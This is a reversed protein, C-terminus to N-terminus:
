SKTVTITYTKTVSDNTVTVTVTNSGADWTITGGNEIVTAAGHKIEVEADTYMTTVNITNTANTTAATYTTESPDFEPSLTLTGIKLSYLDASDSTTNGGFTIVAIGDLYQSFLTMGMIAFCESVATNYNGNVHFGILNTDGDVRYELGAKSYESDGPDVYYLVINEVPTAIVMGPEIESTLFLKSYGMFNNLYNLGFENQVTINAAGLYTYADLINCFGVINTIGKKMQKWKNRVRGQAMALAMQFNAESSKLMGTKIYDYFKDTVKNQLEYLFQDDTLQIAADYGHDNIAEISVTKAYKEINLTAYDKEFVQAKSYPIDEGEGVAGDQLTVEAYKSKLVTGPQRKIPRVIGLIDKLAEWNNTFRSVFDVERSAIIDATTTLNAKAM